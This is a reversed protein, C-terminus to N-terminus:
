KYVQSPRQPLDPRPLNRIGQVARDIEEDVNQYNNDIVEREMEELSTLVQEATPRKSPENSLCDTIMGEFMEHAWNPLRREMEEFYSIRREVESRAM